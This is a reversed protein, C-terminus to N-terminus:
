PASLLYSKKKINGDLFDSDFGVMPFGLIEGPHQNVFFPHSGNWGKKMKVSAAFLAMLDYALSLIGVRM